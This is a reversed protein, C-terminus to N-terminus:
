LLIHIKKFYKKDLNPVIHNDFMHSFPAHGLDHLLGAIRFLEISRDTIKLEPHENRLHQVM